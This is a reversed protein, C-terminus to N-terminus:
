KWTNGCSINCCVYEGTDNDLWVNNSGCDPCRLKQPTYDIEDFVKSAARETNRTRYAWGKIRKTSM